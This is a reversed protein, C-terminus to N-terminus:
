QGPFGAFVPWQADGRKRMATLTSRVDRRKGKALKRAANSLALPVYKAAPLKTQM